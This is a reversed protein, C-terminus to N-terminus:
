RVYGMAELRDMLEKSVEEVAAGAEIIEPAAYAETYAVDPM